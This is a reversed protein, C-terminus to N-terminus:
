TRVAGAQCRMLPLFRQAPRLGVDRPGKVHVRRRDPQTKGGIGRGRRCRRSRQAPLARSRIAAPPTPAALPESPMQKASEDNRVYRGPGHRRPLVPKTRVALGEGDRLPIPMLRVFGTDSM